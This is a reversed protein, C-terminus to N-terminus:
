FSCKKAQIVVSSVTAEEDAFSCAEEIKAVKTAGDFSRLLQEITRFGAHASM